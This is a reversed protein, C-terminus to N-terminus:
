YKRPIQFKFNPIKVYGTYTGTWFETRDKPDNKQDFYFSKKLCFVATVRAIVLKLIKYTLLDDLAFGGTFWSKGIL